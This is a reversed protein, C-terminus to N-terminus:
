DVDLLRLEGVERTARLDIVRQNSSGRYPLRREHLAVVYPGDIVVDALELVRRVAPDTSWAVEEYTYGTYVAVHIGTAKLRAALEACAEPQALPEGGSITVGDRPYDPRLLEALVADLTMLIGAEFNQSHSNRCEACRRPCGQAFLVSRLGPGDVMSQHAFGAVRVMGSIEADARTPQSVQPPPCQGCDLDVTGGLRAALTTLLASDAGRVVLEGSYPNISFETETVAKGQDARPALG